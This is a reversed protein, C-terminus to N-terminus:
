RRRVRRLRTNTNPAVAVAMSDAHCSTWSYVDVGTGRYKNGTTISGRSDVLSFFGEIGRRDDFLSLLYRGFGFGSNCGDGHLLGLLFRVGLLHLSPQFHPDVLEAVSAASQVLAQSGLRREGLNAVVELGAGPGLCGRLDRRVAVGLVTGRLVLFVGRRFSTNRDTPGRTTNGAQVVSSLRMCSSVLRGLISSAKTRKRYRPTTSKLNGHDSSEVTMPAALQDQQALISESPTSEKPKTNEKVPLLKSQAEKTKGKRNEANHYM